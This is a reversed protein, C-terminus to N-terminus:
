YDIGAQQYKQRTGALGSYSRPGALVAVRSRNGGSLQSIITELNRKTHPTRNYMTANIFWPNIPSMIAETRPTRNYMTVNIFLSNMPSMIAETSPTRNYMTVNIFLSNIPNMIAETRPTRNYMTANIFWPQHSENHRKRQVINVKYLESM